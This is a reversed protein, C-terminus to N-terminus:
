RPHVMDDEHQVERVAETPSSYWSRWCVDGLSATLSAGAHQRHSVRSVDTPSNEAGLSGIRRLKPNQTQSLVGVSSYTDRRVM